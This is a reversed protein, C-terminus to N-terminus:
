QEERKEMDRERGASSGGLGMYRYIFLWLKSLPFYTVPSHFFLYQFIFHLWQTNLLLWHNNLATDHNLWLGM